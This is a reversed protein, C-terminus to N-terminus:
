GLSSDRECTMRDVYPLNGQFCKIRVCVSFTQKNRFVFMDYTLKQLYVIKAQLFIRQDKNSISRKMKETLSLKLRKTALIIQYLPIDRRQVKTACMFKSACTICTYYTTFFREAITVFKGYTKIASLLQFMSSLYVDAKRQM